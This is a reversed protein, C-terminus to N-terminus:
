EAAQSIQTGTRWEDWLMRYAAAVARALGAADHLPSAMFQPRLAMRMEALAGPDSAAAGARAVYGDVDGAVWDDLGVAHLIMAGFRGVSPRGALSVVPVGQWLAEITTTGANHPFPDLAIDVAGYATWTKSQPETFTMELRDQEVGQAAFRGAFLARFAAEGFPRSNLVPRSGPVNRMIRAWAAIVTENVREPRGFYRFTICGTAVTPLPAVPPMGDPPAYALPIRPLRIVRESFLAEAGPPALVADALFADIASLGSTYGHGLLHEVQVPAPRHAFVLLRGAATHGALGVLVDIRDARIMDAMGEDTLGVTSRWHDAASRFKETVADPATVEAYCCLEVQSRDDAALMPWAFLAVAHQRFDLSVYGVRLRRGASRDLAFEPQRPALKLAHRRDWKRYEAFIAESPLDARYNLAFLLNSHATAYDPRLELAERCCTETEEHRGQMQLVVALNSLTRHRQTKNALAARHHGEAEVPRGSQGLLAGLTEHAEADDPDIALAQRLLAEARGAEGRGVLCLALSRLLRPQDPARAMADALVTEAKAFRRQDVLLNGLNGLATVLTPDLQLARRYAADADTLRGQARLLVGLDSLVRQM